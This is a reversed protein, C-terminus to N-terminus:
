TMSSSVTVVMQLNAHKQFRSHCNDIFIVRPGLRSKLKLIGVNEACPITNRFSHFSSQLIVSFCYLFISKGTHADQAKFPLYFWQYPIRRTASFLDEPVRLEHSTVAYCDAYCSQCWEPLISIIHDYVGINPWRVQANWFKENCNYVPAHLNSQM